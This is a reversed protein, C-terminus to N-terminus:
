YDTISKQADIASLMSQSIGLPILARYNPRLARGGKEGFDKKYEIPKDYEFRPFNGWFVCSGIIMTPEGFIPALDQISGKVNEVSWYKPKLKDILEKAKLAPRLDPVFERGERAAKVRPANYGQSFETCPFSCHVYEIKLDTGLYYPELTMCDAIVMRPVESLIPNNDIRLVTWKPSQVFAESMGGLGAWFDVMMKKM